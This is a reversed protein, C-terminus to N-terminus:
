LGLFSLFRKHGTLVDGGGLRYVTAVAFVSAAVTPWNIKNLM